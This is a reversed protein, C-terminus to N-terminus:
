FWVLADKALEECCDLRGQWLSPRELLIGM